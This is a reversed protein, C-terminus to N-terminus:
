ERRRTRPAQKNRKKRTRSGARSARAARRAPQRAAASEQVARFLSGMFERRQGALAAQEDPTLEYADLEGASLSGQRVGIAELAALRERLFWVESALTLLMALLREGSVKTAQRGVLM